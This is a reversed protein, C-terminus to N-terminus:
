WKTVPLGQGDLMTGKATAVIDKIAGIICPIWLALSGIAFLWGLIPIWCFCDLVLAIIGMVLRKSGLGLYLQNIGLEGVAIALILAVTRKKQSVAPPTPDPIVYVPQQVPPAAAPEVVPETVPEVVPEAAPQQPEFNNNMNEDM